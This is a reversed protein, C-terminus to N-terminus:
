SRILGAFPRAAGSGPFVVTELAVSPVGMHDGLVAKFLSRLDGTPALDRNEYLAGRSLGPWDAHVKGGAVNGGLVFAAAGTGHDTGGTGNPVATRGFETVTVVVTRGWAEGMGAKLADLGAALQGLATPLRGKTTGQGTHTDWGGIDLVAVNPGGDKAMMRGADGALAAFNGGNGGGAMASTAMGETALGQSLARSLQPDTEYMRQVAAMIEPSSAGVREPKWNGVQVPGQLVLPVGSGFALASWGSGGMSGLARNLWGTSGAPADTGNELENQAEFHSRSRYPSSVAHFIAFEGSAFLGHIPALAPHLAFRGDLPLAGGDTGPAPIALAGRLSVYDPDGIPPVASLGDMAGRLVILVFRRSAHSPVTAFAVSPLAIAAAACGLFKRRSSEM